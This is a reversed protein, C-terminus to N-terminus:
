DRWVPLAEGISPVSEGGEGIVIQWVLFELLIGSDKWSSKIGLDARRVLRLSRLLEDRSYKGLMLPAMVPTAYPNAGYWGQRGYGAGPGSRLAQRLLDAICWLLLTEAVKSAVLARLHELAAGCKREALARLFKGIQHEERFAVMLELDTRELRQAAPNATLLKEIETRLWLLNVGAKEGSRSDPSSEFKATIEQALDADIEVGAQRLFDGLWAAAEQRGLSEIDVVAAKKELLQIFKRRRDPEIAAFVVTAFPSPAELYARLSELDDDSAHRFDEPDSFLLYSRGGLMPMQHAGELERLLRDPQFEIEFLCWSRAEAPVSAILARRCEEHILRDPGRLFYVPGFKGKRPTAIFETPRM